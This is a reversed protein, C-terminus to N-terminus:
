AADDGGLESADFWNREEEGDEEEDDDTDEGALIRDIILDLDDVPPRERPKGDLEPDRQRSRM